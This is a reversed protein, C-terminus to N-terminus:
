CIVYVLCQVYYEIYLLIFLSHVCTNQLFFNLFEPVESDGSSFFLFTYSLSAPKYMYTHFIHM